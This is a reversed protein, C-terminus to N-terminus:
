GGCGVFNVLVAGWAAVMALLAIIVSTLAIWFNKAATKSMDIMTETQLAFQINHVIESESIRNEEGYKQYGMIDKQILVKDIRTVSAGVEKALAVLKELRVRADEMKLIENLKIKNQEIEARKM